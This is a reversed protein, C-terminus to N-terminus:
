YRGKAGADYVECAQHFGGTALARFFALEKTPAFPAHKDQDTQFITCLLPFDIAQTTQFALRRVELFAKVDPYSLTSLWPLLFTRLQPIADSLPHKPPQIAKRIATRINKREKKPTTDVIYCVKEAAAAIRFLANTLVHSSFWTAGWHADITWWKGSEISQRLKKWHFSKDVGLGLAEHIGISFAAGALLRYPNEWDSGSPPPKVNEFRDAVKSFDTM